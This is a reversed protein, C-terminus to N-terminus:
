SIETRHIRLMGLAAPLAVWLLCSTLFRAWEQGTVGPDVLPARARGIDLWESVPDLGPLLRGAMTWALPLAYYTAIAPASNLLLLGFATGCMMTVWNVLCLQAIVIGPADWEWGGITRDLAGGSAFGVIGAALGAATAGVALLGAAVVKAAVVRSRAPVLSFTSLATRQSWESTVSLLGLVPLLVSVPLQANGILSGLTRTDADGFALQAGVVALTLVAITLILWFGARTDAAKRLEVLTLRGMSPRIDARGRPPSVSITASM